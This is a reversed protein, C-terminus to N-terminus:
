FIVKLAYLTMIFFIIIIVVTPVFISIMSIKRGCKEVLWGYILTGVAGGICLISGISSAEFLSIPQTGLPTADSQLLPLNASPWGVAIGYVFVMINASIITYFQPLISGM